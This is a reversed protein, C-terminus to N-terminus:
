NLIMKIGLYCYSLCLRWNKPRIKKLCFIKAKDLYCNKFFIYTSKGADIAHAGRPTMVLHTQSIIAGFNLWV